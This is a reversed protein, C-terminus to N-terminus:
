HNTKTVLQPPSSSTTIPAQMLRELEQPKLNWPVSNILAEWGTQLQRDNGSRQRAELWNDVADHWIGEQAFIAARDALSAKELSSLRQPSLEVRRIWGDTIAFNVSSADEGDSPPCQVVFKWTYTKGVQLPPLDRSEPLKITVLQEAGTVSLQTSYIKHGGEQLVFFVDTAPMAPLYWTFAPYAQTTLGASEGSTIPVLPQQFKACLGVGRTGGSSNRGPIGKVRPVFRQAQAISPLAITVGLNIVLNISLFTLVTFLGRSKQSLRLKMVKKATTLYNLLVRYFHVCDLIFETDPCCRGITM